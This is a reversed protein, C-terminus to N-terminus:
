TNQSVGLQIRRRGSLLLLCLSSVVFFYVPFTPSFKGSSSCHTYVSCLDLKCGELRSHADKIGTASVEWFVSDDQDLLPPFEPTRTKWNGSKLVYLGAGHSPQASGPAEWFRCMKFKHGEGEGRGKVTSKEKMGSMRSGGYAGQGGLTRWWERKGKAKRLRWGEVTELM